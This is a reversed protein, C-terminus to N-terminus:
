KTFSGRTWVLVSAGGRNVNKPGRCASKRSRALVRTVSKPRKFVGVAAVLVQVAEIFLSVDEVLDKM